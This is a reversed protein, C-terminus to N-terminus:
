LIAYGSVYSVSMDNPYEVLNSRDYKIISFRGKDQFADEQRIFELAAMAVGIPHRGCVTNRTQKLSDLFADHSGSKVADMAAEDIVRITEHIPPGNPKPSEKRLQTLDFPSKTSSYPLYSFNDGWHCFDSSIIFANEPDRLYPLLARGIVKEEQRNNSGVLVPVIKPFKDPSDFTEQCRLYLYPMHMELSHENVEGRRSMPEMAVADELETALETDIELDGFPTAYKEFTTAACGELYYTHSPGLVIVRKARSLDLTKYAWAACPGSFKYGAHPAVIVRAGPIPLAVGDFSEPVAALYNQLERRLLKQDEEYWSGAKSAPRTTTMTTEFPNM